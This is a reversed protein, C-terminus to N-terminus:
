SRTLRLQECKIKLTPNQENLAKLDQTLLGTLRTEDKAKKTKIFTARNGINDNMKNMYDQYNSIVIWSRKDLTTVNNKNMGCKRLAKNRKTSFQNMHHYRIRHCQHLRDVLTAKSEETAKNTAVTVCIQHSYKEHAIQESEVLFNSPPKTEKISTRRLLKQYFSTTYRHKCLVDASMDSMPLRWSHRSDTRKVSITLMWRFETTSCPYSQDKNILLLKNSIGTLVM